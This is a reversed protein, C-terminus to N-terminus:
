RCRSQADADADRLVRRLVKGSPTRPIEEVFEVAHIRKYTALREAVHAVLEDATVDHGPRAVVAAKPVEGRRTDPIGYVACDAVAPHSFLVKEIEVPAVAFASVKLMEKLRDTIHIWGEPEVWGIDGTRFWERGEGLWADENAEEPLYGLMAFPARVVIEGENGPDVDALTDPDVVRVDVDSLPLGPSDLRWRDPHRVPNCHLAQV